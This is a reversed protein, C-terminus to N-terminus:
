STTIIASWPLASLATLASPVGLVACESLGTGMTTTESRTFDTCSPMKASTAGVTSRRIPRSCGASIVPLASTSSFYGAQQCLFDRVTFHPIKTEPRFGTGPASRNGAPHKASSKTSSRRSSRSGAPYSVCPTRWRTNPIRGTTQSSNWPSRSATTRETESRRVSAFSNTGTRITPFRWCNTM